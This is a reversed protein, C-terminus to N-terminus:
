HTRSLVSREFAGSKLHGALQGVVLGGCIREPALYIAIGEVFRPAKDEILVVQRMWLPERTNACHHFGAIVSDGRPGHIFEEIVCGGTPRSVIQDVMTGTLRVRLQLTTPDIRDREIDLVFMHPLIKGSINAPEILGADVQVFLVDALQRLRNDM